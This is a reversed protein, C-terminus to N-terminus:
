RGMRHKYSSHLRCFPMGRLSSQGTTFKSPSLSPHGSLLSDLLSRLAKCSNCGVEGRDM